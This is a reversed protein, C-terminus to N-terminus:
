VTRPYAAPRAAAAPWPWADAGAGPRVLDIQLRASTGTPETEPLTLMTLAGPPDIVETTSTTADVKLSAIFRPSTGGPSRAGRAPTGLTLPAKVM